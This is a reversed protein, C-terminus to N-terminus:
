RAQGGIPVESFGEATMTWRSIRRFVLPRRAVIHAYDLVIGEPLEGPQPPEKAAIGWVECAPFMAGEAFLGDPCSRVVFVYREQGNNPLSHKKRPAQPPPAIPPASEVVRAAEEPSMILQRRFKVGSGYYQRRTVGVNELHQAILAAETSNFGYRGRLATSGPFGEARVIAALSHPDPIM